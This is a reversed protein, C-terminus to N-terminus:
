FLVLIFDLVLALMTKEECSYITRKTFSKIQEKIVNYFVSCVKLQLPMALMDQWRM